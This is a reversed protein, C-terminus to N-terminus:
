TTALTRRLRTEVASTRPTATAMPKRGATSGGRQSAATPTSSSNRSATDHSDAANPSSARVGSAALPKVKRTMNRGYGLLANTGTSVMGPQNRPKASWWGTVGTMSVNRASSSPVGAPM